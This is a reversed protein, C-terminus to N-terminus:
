CWSGNIWTGSKHWLHQLLKSKKRNQSVKDLNVNVFSSSIIEPPNMYSNEVQFHRSTCIMGANYSIHYKLVLPWHRFILSYCIHKDNYCFITIKMSTLWKGLLLSAGSVSSSHVWERVDVGKCDHIISLFWLGVSWERSEDSQKM